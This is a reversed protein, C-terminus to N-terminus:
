GALDELVRAERRREVRNRTAPAVREVAPRDRLRDGGVHLLAAAQQRRGVEGRMVGVPDRRDRRGVAAVLDELQRRVRLADDRELHEVDELAEVDLRESVVRRRVQVQEDFGLPDRKGIARRPQRSSATGGSASARSLDFSYAASRRRSISGACRPPWSCRRQREARPRRRRRFRRLRLPSM